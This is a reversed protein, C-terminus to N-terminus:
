LNKWIKMGSKGRKKGYDYVFPVEEVKRMFSRLNLLIEINAFFTQVTIFKDGYHALAEQLIGARYARYFISYDKVGKVPFLLQFVINAGKSLILRKLPFKQYKGGAEYRSAIVIDAGARVRRAMEPLVVPSSTGDGEMIVIVDNPAAKASTHAIGTRFAEAVGRNVHHDLVTVPYQKALGRAVEVTNDKSGDNVIAAAYPEKALAKAIDQLLAPLNKGENYAPIVIHIM